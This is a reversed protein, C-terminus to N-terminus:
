TGGGAGARGADAVGTEPDGADVGPCTPAAGVAGRGTVGGAGGACIAGFGADGPGADEDLEPGAPDFGFGAGGRWPEPEVPELPDYAGARDRQTFSRLHEGNLQLDSGLVGRMHLAPRVGTQPRASYNRSTARSDDSSRAPRARLWQGHIISQGRLSM